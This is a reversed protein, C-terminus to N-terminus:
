LSKDEIFLLKFRSKYFESKEFMNLQSATEYSRKVNMRTSAIFIAGMTLLCGLEIISEPRQYYVGYGVLSSAMGVPLLAHVVWELRERRQLEELLENNKSEKSM